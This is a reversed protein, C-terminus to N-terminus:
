TGLAAELATEPLHPVDREHDVCARYAAAQSAREADDWGLEPAILAAVEDALPPPRTAPSCGPVPGGPSCTTSSRAMEHRAAYVAEARLYPLGPVLPEALDPRREALALVAPAEGGYRDLLHTLTDDGAHAASSRLTDYGAAGRLQLHRTRSGRARQGLVREVEDVTDAAMERYTTLKGGTITVLGSASRAM